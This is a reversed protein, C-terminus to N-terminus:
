KETVHLCMSFLKAKSTPFQLLRHGLSWNWSKPWIWGCVTESFQVSRKNGRKIKSQSKALNITTQKSVYSGFATFFILIKHKACMRWSLLKDSALSNREQCTPLIYWQNELSQKFFFFTKMQIHSSRGFPLTLTAKVWSHRWQLIHTVIKFKGAEALM